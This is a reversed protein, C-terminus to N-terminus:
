RRQDRGVATFAEVHVRGFDRGTYRYRVGSTPDSHEDDAVPSGLLHAVRTLDESTTCQVSLQVGASILGGGTGYAVPVPLDATWNEALWVVMEAMDDQLDLLVSMLQDLDDPPGVSTDRHESGAEGAVPPSQFWGSEWGCSCEARYRLGRRVVAVLHVVDPVTTTTDTM